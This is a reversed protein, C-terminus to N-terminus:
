LMMFLVTKTKMAKPSNQKANGAFCAWPETVRRTVAVAVLAPVDDAM